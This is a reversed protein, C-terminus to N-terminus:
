WFDLSRHKRLLRRKQIVRNDNRLDQFTSQKNNRRDSGEKKGRFEKM